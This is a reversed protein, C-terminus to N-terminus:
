EIPPLIMTDGSYVLKIYKYKLLMNKLIHPQHKCVSLVATQEGVNKAKDANVASDYAGVCMIKGFKNTACQYWETSTM